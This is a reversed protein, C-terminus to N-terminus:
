ELDAKSLTGKIGVHWNVGFTDPSTTVDFLHEQRHPVTYTGEVGLDASVNPGFALNVGIGFVGTISESHTVPVAKAAGIVNPLLMGSPLDEWTRYIAGLHVDFFSPDKQLKSALVGTGGIIEVTSAPDVVFAPNTVTGNADVLEIEAKGEHQYRMRVYPEAVGGRRSFATAIRIGTTGPGAGRKGNKYTWRNSKKNGPRVGFDVRWSVKQKPFLKESFPAFAAGLWVGTLGGGKVTYPEGETDPESFLYSGGGDVPELLMTRANPYRWSWSPTVELGIVVAAGKFPSFEVTADIDHQQVRRDAIRQDGENLGGIEVRGRYQVEVSGGIPAPFATVEAASATLMWLM